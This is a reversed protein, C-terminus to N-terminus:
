RRLSNAIGMLQDGAQVVQANAAYARQLLMLTVMEETLFVNSQEIAGQALVGAGDEGPTMDALETQDDVAYLGDGVSNLRAPNRVKVLDIQGIQSIRGDLDAWVKGDPDITLETAATPPSIMAKLVMGNATALFGDPNVKMAGGRWLRNQGSPGMVEIFGEGNIALDTPRGTPRVDGQTFVRAAGVSAVGAMQQPQSGTADAPGAALLESFRVESRKFGATNLNAINNAIVDLARQQSDLGTAGIYFAGNM